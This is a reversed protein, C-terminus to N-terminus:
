EEEGKQNQNQHAAWCILAMPKLGRLFFPGAQYVPGPRWWM